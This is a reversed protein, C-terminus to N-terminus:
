SRVYKEPHRELEKRCRSSCLEADRRASSNLANGCVRCYRAWRIHTAMKLFLAGFLSRVKWGAIIKRRLVKHESWYLTFESTLCRDTLDALMEIAIKTWKAPTKPQAHNGIVIGCISMEIERFEEQSRTWTGPNMQIIERLASARAGVDDKTIAAYLAIAAQATKAAEQILQLPEYAYDLKNELGHVRRDGLTIPHIFGPLSVLKSVPRFGLLGRRSVWEVLKAAPISM